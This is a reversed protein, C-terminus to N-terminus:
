KFYINKNLNNFEFINKIFFKDNITINKILNFIDTLM